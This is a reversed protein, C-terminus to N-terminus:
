MEDVEEEEKVKIEVEVVVMDEMDNMDNMTIGVMINVDEKQQTENQLIIVKMTQMM